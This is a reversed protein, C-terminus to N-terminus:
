VCSKLPQACEKMLGLTAGAAETSGVPLDQVLWAGPGCVAPVEDVLGDVWGQMESVDNQELQVPPWM